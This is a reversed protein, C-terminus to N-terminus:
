SIQISKKRRLAMIKKFADDFTGTPDVNYGCLILKSINCKEIFRKAMLWIEKEIVFAEPRM